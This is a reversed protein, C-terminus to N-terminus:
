VSLTGVISVYHIAGALDGSFRVGTLRRAAKDAPNISALTPMLVKSTGIAILGPVEQTGEFRKCAGLIANSILDLGSATFPVKDAQAILALVSEKIDRELADIGHRIDIFDGDPTMGDRTMLTTSTVPTYHNINDTALNTMQTATLTKATIGVLAKNAWTISGPAKPAGVGVWAEAAMEHSNFTFLLATRNNGSAKLDAGITGTGALESSNHVNAFFLKKQGLVWTAVSDINAESASDITVFYWDDNDVQLASLEDDYGADATTDELTANVLDFIHVKRGAVTPTVTIAAVSSTSDVGAVADVLLEFATAVTTLTAAAPITYDLETITGTAPAIVKAKVHQGEVASTVTLVSTFAPAAPLRGVVLSTVTPNQAFVAKAKRYADDYSTFGDSTMGALDTYVRYNEAFRTHYTLVLPTGFGQRSPTKSNATISVQVITDIEAM